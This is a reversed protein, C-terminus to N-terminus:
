RFLMHGELLLTLIQRKEKARHTLRQNNNIERNEKARQTLRRIM